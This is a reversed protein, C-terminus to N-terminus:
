LSIFDRHDKVNPRGITVGVHCVNWIDIFIALHWLDIQVFNCKPPAERTYLSTANECSFSPPITLFFQIKM